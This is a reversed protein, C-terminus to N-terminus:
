LSIAWYAGPNADVVSASAIQDGDMQWLVIEGDQGRWLIDARGDGGFDSIGAMAWYAGPNADLVSASTIKDGDMQWIAVEGDQGCWLIDARGDGGFDGIGAM